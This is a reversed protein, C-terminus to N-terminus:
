LPTVAVEEFVVKDKTLEEFVPIVNFVEVPATDTADVTGAPM